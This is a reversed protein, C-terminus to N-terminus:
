NMPFNGEKSFPNFAANLVDAVNSFGRPTEGQSGTPLRSEFAGIATSGTFERGSLAKRQELEAQIGARDFGAEGPLAGGSTVHEGITKRQKRFERGAASGTSIKEGRKSKKRKEVDKEIAERDFGKEGPLKGGREVHERITTM